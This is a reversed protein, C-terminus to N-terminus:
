AYWLFDNSINPAEFWQPHVLLGEPLCPFFMMRPYSIEVGLTSLMVLVINSCTIFGAM